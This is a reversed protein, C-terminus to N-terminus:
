GNGFCNTSARDIKAIDDTGNRCVNHERYRLPVIEEGEECLPIQRWIGGRRAKAAFWRVPCEHCADRLLKFDQRHEACGPDM